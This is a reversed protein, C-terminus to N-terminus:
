ENLIAVTCHAYNTSITSGRPPFFVSKYEWQTEVAEAGHENDDNLPIDYARSLHRSMM